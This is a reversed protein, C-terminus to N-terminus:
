GRIKICPFEYAVVTASFCTWIFEGFENGLRPVWSGFPEGVVVGPSVHGNRSAMDLPSSYKLKLGSSKWWSLVNLYGAGAASDIAASSYKLELGSGKWWDLVATQGCKSAHDIAMMTFKLEYGSQKWFELVAVHGNASAVDMATNTYQPVLGSEKWWQLVLAQGTRSAENLPPTIGQLVDVHGADCASVLALLSYVGDLVIGSDKWWQLVHVHGNESAVDM